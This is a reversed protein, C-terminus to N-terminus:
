ELCGGFPNKLERERNLGLGAWLKLFSQTARQEVRLVPNLHTVGTRKTKSTLGEKIRQERAQEALDLYELAIQFSVIRSTGKVRAGVLECWLAKSRESLHEPPAPWEKKETEEM